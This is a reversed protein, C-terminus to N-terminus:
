RDKNLQASRVASVPGNASLKDFHLASDDRPKSLSLGFPVPDRRALCSGMVDTFVLSGDPQFQLWVNDSSESRWHGPASCRLSHRLNGPLTLRLRQETGAEIRLKMPGARWMGVCRSLERPPVDVVREFLTARVTPELGARLQHIHGDFGCAFALRAGTLYCRRDDDARFADAAVHHLRVREQRLRLWLRGRVQEIHLEGVADHVYRGVYAALPRAPLPAAKPPTPVAAKAAAVADAVMTEYRAMWDIRPLALLQDFVAYLLPARLPSQGANIALAVGLGIDPLMAAMATFGRLNGGHHVFRHGRYSSVFWGMGYQTAGLEPWEIADVLPTHPRQMMAVDQARLVARGRWQGAALQMSLYRGLENVSTILGGTPAMAGIETFASRRAKGRVLEHGVAHDADAQMAQLSFGARRMALPAFVRQAVNDEYSRGSVRELLHGASIYMLNQYHYTSRPPAFGPLHRLRQVIQARTDRSGLWTHDHRPLGSRHCVLDRVSLDHTAPDALEFEPLYRQVPQDWDFLGEAAAGHLAGVTFSKSVSAMMFLTDASVPAGTDVNRLGYGRAFRVGQADCISMALGPAKFRKLAAQALGDLARQQDMPLPRTM